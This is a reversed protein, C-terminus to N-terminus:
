FRRVINEGSDRVLGGVWLTRHTHKLRRVYGDIVALSFLVVGSILRCPPFEVLLFM